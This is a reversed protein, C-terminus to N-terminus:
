FGGQGMPVVRITTLLFACFEFIARFTFAAQILRAISILSNCHKQHHSTVFSLGIDVQRGWERFCRDLSLHFAVGRRRTTQRARMRIIARGSNKRRWLWSHSSRLIFILESVFSNRVHLILLLSCPSSIYDVSVKDPWEHLM